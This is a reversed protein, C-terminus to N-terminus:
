EKDLTAVNFLNDKIDRNYQIDSLTFITKHKKQINDMTLNHATWIDDISKIDSLYLIKLLRSKKDYYEVKVALLMEQDIWSIMKSYIENKDKPTSEVIWCFHDNLSDNRLFKHTDEDIHREGLDDYTFDSGMFFDHKSSGSIRRTKKLAPLYLWRSDDKDPTHYEWSLFATGRVNAPLQFRMLLKNDKDYKKAFSVLTRKRVQNKKNILAMDLLSKMTNGDPRDKVKQIIAYGTLSEGANSNLLFCFVV